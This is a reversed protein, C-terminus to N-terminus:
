IKQKFKLPKATLLPGGALTLTFTPKKGKYAKKIKLIVSASCSAGVFKVPFSKSALRKTKKKVKLSAVVKIKGTCAAPSLGPAGVRVNGTVSIRGKRLRSKFKPKAFKGSFISPTPSPPAFLKLGEVRAPLYSYGAVSSGLEGFVNDGWCSVGGDNLLACTSRFSSALAIAPAGLPITPTPTPNPVTSGSNVSNGLQGFRNM